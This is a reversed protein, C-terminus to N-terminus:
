RRRPREDVMTNTLRDALTENQFRVHLRGVIYFFGGFVTLVTIFGRKILVKRKPVEYTEKHVVRIRMFWKGISGGKITADKLSFFVILALFFSIEAVIYDM